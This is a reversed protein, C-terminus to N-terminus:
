GGYTLHRYKSILDEFRRGTPTFRLGRRTDEVWRLEVWLREQPLSGFREPWEIVLAGEQLLEEVDFGLFSGAELRYGDAHFLVRGDPDRYQNLLVFSPSTAPQIAGWGRAIGQVLTTKGTGLDGRLCVLDGPRLLEGLRSGLRQSQEASHSLIDLTAADLVPVLLNYAPCQLTM